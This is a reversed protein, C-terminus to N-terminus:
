NLEHEKQSFLEKGPKQHQHHYDTGNLYAHSNINILVTMFSIALYSHICANGDAFAHIASHLVIFVALLM